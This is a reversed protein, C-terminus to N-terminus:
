YPFCFEYEGSGVKFIARGIGPETDRAPEARLFTVGQSQKAPRGGETVKDADATPVHVEATTNPPVTIHWHFRRDEIRWRSEIRGRVSDYYGSASTLDGVPEPRLLLRNFAFGDPAQRIGVVSQQFWEQIHGFMCHNMSSGPKDWRESLTKFGLKLMHGYGPPDTRDIMRYV